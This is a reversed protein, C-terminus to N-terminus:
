RLLTMTRAVRRGGAELVYLYAGSASPVGAEDRGDWRVAQPGAERWGDVLTRVLRGAADYVRLRAPGATAPAYRIVTAPNFPNPHNQALVLVAPDPVATAQDSLTLTTTYIFDGTSAGNGNAANGAAYFTVPGVGQAPAIWRVAWGPSADLTGNFTGASTHKAYQRGTAATSLQTTTANALLLTGARQNAGDLATLEFGWRRQGTQALAIAVTLTEGPAYGAAVTSLAFAGSGTNLNGHCDACTGEGPAGTLANNPGASFAAARSSSLLLTALALGTWVVTRM